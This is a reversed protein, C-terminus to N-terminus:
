VVVRPLKKLSSAFAVLSALLLVSNGQHVSAWSLPVYNVLTGIGLGIQTMGLAFVTHMLVRSGRNMRIGRGVWWGYSIGFCMFMALARHVIQVTTPNELLNYWMGQSNGYMDLAYEENWYEERKPLLGGGMLPFENYILGADLGAVMAGSLCTVFAMIALQVSGHRYIKLRSQSLIERMQEANKMKGSLLKNLRITKRGYLYFSVYLIYAMALHMTLRYQSVRPITGTKEGLDKNLGSAVMFWGVAGQMGILGGLGLIKLINRKHVKGKAIFYAAPIAYVLGLLRGINRHFWEMFYIKKFEELTIDTHVVSYEPFEKYKDFEVNWEEETTPLKAGSIPAWEVISLGSETLRTLGGWVIIGFCMSACYLLWYGVAPSNVYEVKEKGDYDFKVEKAVSVSSAMRKFVNIGTPNSWNANRMLFYSRQSFIGNLSGQNKWSFSQTKLANSIGSNLFTASSRNVSYYRKGEFIEKLSGAKSAKSFDALNNSVKFVVNQDQQLSSLLRLNAPLNCRKFSNLPLKNRALLGGFNM